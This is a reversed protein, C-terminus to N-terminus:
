GPTAPPSRSPTIARRSCSGSIIGTAPDISLGPALRRRRVDDAARRDGRDAYLFPRGPRAGYVAAGNIRPEAPPRPTLVYPGQEGARGMLPALSLLILLVVSLGVAQKINM